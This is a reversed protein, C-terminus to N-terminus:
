IDIDGFREAFNKKHARIRVTYATLWINEAADAILLLATINNISFFTSLKYFDLLALIGIVTICSASALMFRWRMGFKKADMSTQLKLLGDFIVYICYITVFKEVMTEPLAILLIGLVAAFIGVAFDFQFALRYMDNSYYAFMKAAGMLLSVGGLIYCFARGESLDPFILMFVGLLLLLSAALIYSIKANQVIRNRPTATEDTGLSSPKELNKM